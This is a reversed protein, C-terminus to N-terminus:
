VPLNVGVFAGGALAACVHPLPPAWSKAIARTRTWTPRSAWRATMYYEAATSGTKRCGLSSLSSYAGGQRQWRTM